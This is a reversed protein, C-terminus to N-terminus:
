HCLQFSNIKFNTRLKDCTPYSGAYQSLYAPSPINNLWISAFRVIGGPGSATHCHM